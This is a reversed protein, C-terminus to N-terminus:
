RDPSTAPETNALEEPTLPKAKRATDQFLLQFGGSRHQAMRGRDKAAWPEQLLAARCICFGTQSIAKRTPYPKQLAKKRRLRLERHWAAHGPPRQPASSARAAMRVCGDADKQSPSRGGFPQLVQSTRELGRRRRNRPAPASCGERRPVGSGELREGVATTPPGPLLLPSPWKESLNKSM